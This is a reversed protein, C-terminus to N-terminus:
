VAGAKLRARFRVSPFPHVTKPPPLYRDVIRSFRSWPMQHRQSRRHLQRLWHKKVEDLFQTMRELNGPIAHYT